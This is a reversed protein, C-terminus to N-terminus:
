ANLVQLGLRRIWWTGSSVLTKIKSVASSAATAPLMSASACINANNRTLSLRQLSHENQTKAITKTRV